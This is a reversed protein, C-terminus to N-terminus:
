NSDRGVSICQTRELRVCAPFEELSESNQQRPTLQIWFPNCHISLSVCQDWSGSAITGTPTTYLTCVNASHGLLSFDPDQKGTGLKFVNVLSDQGGTM